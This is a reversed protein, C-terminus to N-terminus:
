LSTNRSPMVCISPSTQYARSLESIPLAVSSPLWINPCPVWLKTKWSRDLTPTAVRGKVLRLSMFDPPRAPPPPTLSSFGKPPKGLLLRALSLFCVSQRVVLQCGRENCSVLSHVMAAAKHALDSNLLAAPAYVHHEIQKLMNFAEAIADPLAQRTGIAHLQAQTEPSAVLHSAYLADM